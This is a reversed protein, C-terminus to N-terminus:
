ITYSQRLSSLETSGYEELFRFINTVAEKDEVSMFMSVISFRNLQSLSKLFCTLFEAGQVTCFHQELCRLILSLMEGDLKNGIVKNLDDYNLARLLQAHPKLDTHNKLSQWVRIFEYPREVNYINKEYGQESKNVKSEHKDAVNITKPILTANVAHKANTVGDGEKTEFCQDTVEFIKIKENVNPKGETSFKTDSGTKNLNTSLEPRGICSEPPLEEIVVTSSKNANHPTVFSYISKTKSMKLSSNTKAFSSRHKSTSSTMNITNTNESCYDSKLHPRPEVYKSSGPAKNCFCVEGTKKTAVCAKTNQKNNKQTKNSSDKTVDIEDTCEQQIKMRVKKSECPKRLKKVGEIAVKNNPDLKLVAEYDALAQQSKELRELALARRLLAKTNTYEASLVMNCDNLADAYRHLKIYTMARNNYTVLNNDVTISYTYHSLAEEYDGTRFAENGKEREQRAMVEIETGTLTLKNIIIDKTTHKMANNENQKQQARRADARQQENRIDIKNIETDVDYKDWAAYDCSTIRKATAKNRPGNSITKNTIKGEVERVAPQLFPENILTGKGEELDKECCQMETRWNKMDEEIEMRENPELMNRTRVPETKRLISSSPKIIALRNEAFKILDPFFGEEGSRNVRCDGQLVSRYAM